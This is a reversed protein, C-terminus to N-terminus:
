KKRGKLDKWIEGFYFKTKVIVLPSFLQEPIASSNILILRFGIGCGAGFYRLFRYQITMLPEYVVFFKTPTKIREGYLVGSYNALGFGLQAPITAEWYYTKFFTYEAFLSVYNFNFRAVGPTIERVNNREPFKKSLWNYGVGLKFTGSYDIGIKINQISAFQNEIFSYQSGYNFYLSPKNEFSKAISDMLQSKCELHLIFILFVFISKMCSIDLVFIDTFENVSM